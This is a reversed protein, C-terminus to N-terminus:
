NQALSSPFAGDLPANKRLDYEMTASEAPNGTGIGITNGIVNTNRSIVM